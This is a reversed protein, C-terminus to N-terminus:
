REHFLGRVLSVIEPRFQVIERGGFNEPFKEGASNFVFYENVDLNLEPLIM